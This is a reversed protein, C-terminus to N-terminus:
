AGSPRIQRPKQWERSPQRHGSGHLLDRTAVLVERPLSENVLAVWGSPLAVPGADLLGRDTDIREALSSWRWAQARDVLGARLANAEVYRMVQYYQRESEIIRSHYRGQYLHGHGITNTGRRHRIAHMSCLRHCFATVARASEPWVVMHWHNPMLCYALLRIPSRGKTGAVLDLFDEYERDTGFLLRRDNSRNVVHLVSDPPAHRRPRPM